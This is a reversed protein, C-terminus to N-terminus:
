ESDRSYQAPTLLRVQTGAKVETGAKPNSGGVANDGWPGIPVLGVASLASQAQDPTMGATNPVQVETDSDSNQAISGSPKPFSKKPTGKLTADMIEKWMPAAITDGFIFDPYYKGGLSIGKMPKQNNARGVFVATTLQPTSGVFWSAIANQTTGTKGFADRGGALKVKRATGLRETFPAHFLQATGRAVDKSLVQKCPAVEVPVEKGQATKIARVPRPTCEKGDAAITAYANALALPSSSDSGLVINSPTAKIPAGTPRTLGLQTMTDRVKCAGLEGTLQAFATNVSEGTARDLKMPGAPSAHSNGVKWLESSGLGCDDNFLSRTFVARPSGEDSKATMRPVNITSNISRGQKLAEVIAFIKIASGVPFGASTGGSPASYNVSTKGSGGSNSYETNQGIAQVLGTGPEVMVASSQVDQANGVPVRKKIERDIIAMKKPDLATQIILGGSRLKQMREKPTKGLSPQQSLWTQVYYCYYAYKASACSQDTRGGEKLGLPSAKAKEGEAPTVMKQEVMRQIVVNRRAKAAEPNRIPDTAGPRQVVGALTAAQQLNLKAASVNFYNRAAAEVGYTQDGMYVTNLYGGLIQDKTMKTELSVAFKLQQLKRLYGETGTRSVADAAADKDGRKLAQDQLVVKVYQQTLTSAGQTSDSVANSAFARMIGEPDVGGHEYFRHDEIAVQAQRMVPAIKSMPVVIRNEDYPTAITSGDIALIRSQQNLPNVELEGPLNKFMSVGEKTAQGTAGVAPLVLGAGLLGLVVSTAVFAGLLSLVKAVRSESPM